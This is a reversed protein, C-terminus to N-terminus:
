GKLENTIEATHEGLRPAHRRIKFRSSKFTIPRRLSRYRGETPHEETSFMGVAQMHADDVLEEFALVPMCPISVRDCFEVWDATPRKAAEEELLTYLVDIHQVRESLETFRPDALLEEHGTFAFLDRWNADSYPLICAYGDSTKYPKRSKALMRTFGFPGLPPEFAFGSFNEVALFEVATEFMPVEIEDGEGTKSRRYLAALIAYAMAQGGLKDCVVNPVYRPVGDLATYMAAMGSGAQILDDYAAKDGYPGGAGFGYAGCYVIDNKLARVKDYTYGLRAIAKPRLSHVFVDATEILDDLTARDRAQKLDLVISRKNRNLNLFSGFMGPHRNPKYSRFSDGEESEVKIVDAGLDALIHTAFPGMIVSTLDVVRVGTLPGDTV